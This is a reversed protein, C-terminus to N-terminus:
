LVTKSYVEMIKILLNGPVQHDIIHGLVVIFLVFESFTFVTNGPNKWSLKEIFSVDYKCIEMLNGMTRDINPTGACPHRNWHTLPWCFWEGNYVGTTPSAWNAVHKVFWKALGALSATTELTGGAPPPPTYGPVQQLDLVLGPSRM